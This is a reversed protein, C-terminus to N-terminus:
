KHYYSGLRLEKYTEWKIRERLETGDPLIILIDVNDGMTCEHQIKIEM